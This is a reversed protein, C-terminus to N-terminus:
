AQKVRNYLAMWKDVCATWTFKKSFDIYKQREAKIMDASSDRIRRLTSLLTDKYRQIDEDTRIIPINPAEPHITENLAAIRTTVPICGAAQCKVATICYTESLTICPYAWVSTSQMIEALKQHGVKGHETVGLDKYEGIKNVIWELQQPSMTGWHERGYCIELTAQPFEKHIDPWIGLLIALGRSYNSYYGISYPNTIRMPTSFQEPLFGNGSIVGLSDGFGPWAMFQNAHHQSLLLVGDYKPFPPLRAGPPVQPPSDHSWFFVFKGRKRGVEPDFRRWMLVLDYTAKNDPSNWSDVPLWRPNSFASRWISQEPPDLYLDVKHGRRALEQSAYVACEESGPLGTVTNFPDWPPVLQSKYGLVAVRFKDTTSDLHEALEKEAQILRNFDITKRFEPNSQAITIAGSYIRAKAAPDPVLQAVKDLSAFDAM